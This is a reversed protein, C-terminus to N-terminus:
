DLSPCACRGRRVIPERPSCIGTGRGRNARARVATHPRAEAPPVETRLDPPRAKLRTNLRTGNSPPDLTQDSLVYVSQQCATRRRHQAEEFM